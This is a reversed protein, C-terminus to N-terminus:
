FMQNPDLQFPDAYGKAALVKDTLSSVLYGPLEPEPALDDQLCFTTLKNSNELGPIVSLPMSLDTALLLTKVPMLSSESAKMRLLWERHKESHLHTVTIRRYTITFPEGDVPFMLHDDSLKCNKLAPDKVKLEMIEDTTMDLLMVLRGSLSSLLATDGKLCLTRREVTTLALKPDLSLFTSAHHLEALQELLYKFRGYPTIMPLNFTPNRIADVLDMFHYVDQCFSPVLSEMTSTTSASVTHIQEERRSSAMVIWKTVNARIAKHM